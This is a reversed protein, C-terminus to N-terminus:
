TGRSRREPSPRIAVGGLFGGICCRPVISAHAATMAATAHPSEVGGPVTVDTDIVPAGVPDMATLRVAVNVAVAATVFPAAFATVHVDDLVATAVNAALPLLAVTVATAGPVLLMTAVDDNSGVFVPLVVIV